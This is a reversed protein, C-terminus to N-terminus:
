AWDRREFPQVIWVDETVTEASYQPSHVSQPKRWIVATHIREIQPQITPMHDVLGQLTIGSDVLDDALLVRGRLPELCAVAASLNLSGQQSGGTGSYSSAVVVAMPLKLARSLADALPLGGRSVGVVANYPQGSAKVQDIVRDILAEYEVPDVHRKQM